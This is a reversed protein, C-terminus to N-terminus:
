KKRGHKNYFDMREKDLDKAMQEITVPDMEMLDDYSLHINVQYPYDLLLYRVLRMTSNM